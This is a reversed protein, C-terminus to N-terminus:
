SALIGRGDGASCAAILERAAITGATARCGGATLRPALRALRPRNM